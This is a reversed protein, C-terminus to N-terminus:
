DSGAKINLLSELSAVIALIFAYLYIKPNTWHSWNPTSMQNYFDSFGEHRPINVLQPSHQALYSNTSLFIENLLIGLIVVIIPGPIMKFWKITTKDIFILISLSIVSIVLAGSNIHYSLDFLTSLNLGETMDLLHMKLENLNASLTFALPLQKLILLVGIACLLGQIVNSPVYDAIFGARFLGISLQIIGALFLALLFTDFSGLQNIATLVVAALGAAPGSVSVSSESLLGVIVGGIIGSLIGSFLPAGSALAIGLCLPIAVLSVVIAAILDYKLYRRQYIRLKRFHILLDLM